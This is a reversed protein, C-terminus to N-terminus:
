REGRLEGAHCVGDWDERHCDCDPDDCTLHSERGLYSSFEDEFRRRGEATGRATLAFTEHDERGTGCLILLNATVLNNLARDLQSRDLTLFRELETRSVERGLHEGHMWYMVQLIEDQWRLESDSM